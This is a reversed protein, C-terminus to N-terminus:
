HLYIKIQSHKTLAQQEILCKNNASIMEQENLVVSDIKYACTGKKKAIFTIEINKGNLNLSTNIQRTTFNWPGLKPEIVLDGLNSKVGLVEELLTYIYWSASGTLYLYLGKGQGNFYEPLTPYIQGKENIAMKYISNIVKHGEKNFNAKYLAHSLMVNMHSFFAGNEKDGYAFGFARGLQTYLSGFNSNLRYGGLHKDYLRKEITKYIKRIRSTTLAGSMIPFVGSALMMRKTSEVRKGANDYYGNFATGLWEHKNLWSFLHNAKKELASILKDVKITTTAGSITKTKEFYKNLIKQKAKYNNYNIRSSILIDIEKLITLSQTNLEKLFFCLDILNHAYMFTFAVSEGLNVAMDLGDNWDANELKIINHTGVNFFSVLNQILLHELITAQYVEGYKTRLLYDEKFNEDIETARKLSHDRFFPLEKLLINTDGTRNMYLRTTLYPWIGHDMWVRNIRNRDSLFKGDKTIITANSGDIRVGKFSNVILDKAKQPETLLLTLADQWLDRWGRGGKGYDFHPLFSCGFLKRLTPQLKVWKLWGDFEKNNFNIQLSSLYNQWYKKTDTLSNAIKEPTSLCNFYKSIKQKNDEIGMILSYTVTQKPKLTKKKFRFAACSEKGNFSTNNKTIPKLNKVVADPALLNGTGFFSDLTPFQGLPAISKGEFGFCFYNTKNEIHGAEDFVMSPKLTIGYKSLCLRNLLSSVHRHDRINKESRGYLPIFSTPTFTIPRKSKNTVAIQMIEVGINHPIFNLIDITLTKTKKTIKHYIMGATLEDDTISSAQIIEKSTKLFFDRRCLLNSRLDEISAPPTLFHDNDSKIDGALNPGIASLLKGQSDTLPFYLNYRSPNKVKFTAYNDIFKYIPKTMGICEVVFEKNKM